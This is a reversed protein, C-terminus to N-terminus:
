PGASAYDELLLVTIETLQKWRDDNTVLIDAGQLLASAIQLADPTKLWRYKARLEAARNCTADDISILSIGVAERLVERYKRAIDLKGDRLPKALVEVLTLVSTGGRAVGGDFAEFFEKAPGRYRPNQEIYYILPPSDFFAFKGEIARTLKGV